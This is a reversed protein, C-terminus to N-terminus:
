KKEPSYYIELLRRSIASEGGALADFKTTGAARQMISRGEPDQHMSLLVKELGNVMAPVSGKRVSVLHRPLSATEALITIASKKSEELAGYDDNSFAGAAVKKTLVLDRLKRQSTAFVYGIEGPRFRPM